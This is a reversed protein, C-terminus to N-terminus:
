SSDLIRQCWSRWSGHVRNLFRGIDAQLIVREVDWKQPGAALLM